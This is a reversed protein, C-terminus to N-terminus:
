FILRVLAMAAYFMVFFQVTSLAIIGLGYFLSGDLVFEFIEGMYESFSERVETWNVIGHDHKKIM